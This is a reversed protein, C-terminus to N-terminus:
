SIRIMADTVLINTTDTENSTYAEIYDNTSLLERWVVTTRGIDGSSLRNTAESNAVAAGNKAVFFGLIKNTGSVPAASFSMTIDVYIDSVGIYTCRGNADGTFESALEVVWTGLILVPTLPAAIVTNTANSSMSLMVDKHTDVIDDNILFQWRIDSSTITQVATGAGFFRCNHVTGLGGSVINGSSVLGDLFVSIGNLTAFCDTVSFATFTAAGLGYMTGAAITPRNAAILVVGNVGGFTVGQTTVTFVNGTMTLSGFDELLGLTDAAIECDQVSISETGIGSVDFLQGTACNITLDKIRWDSGGGTFMMGVGTYTLSVVTSDSGNLVCNGALLFRDSTILDNRIAYETDPQLVIVGSVPAPFDSMENVIVTKTSAPIGSLAIQINGNSRSVNIGAGAVLSRFKPQTVGLDVVLEVGVTDTIFNHDLTIGGEPSVSAKVGYGDELNRIENVTGSTNLVPTGSVSGKQVITGTVGLGGIFDSYSIKYNTRNSIYTFFSGAPVATGSIFNSIKRDKAQNTM